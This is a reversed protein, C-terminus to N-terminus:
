EGYYERRWAKIDKLRSPDGLEFLLPVGDKIWQCNDIFKTGVELQCDSAFLGESSEDSKPLVTQFKKVESTFSTFVRLNSGRDRTM